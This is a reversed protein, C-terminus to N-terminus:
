QWKEAGKEVALEMLHYICGRVGAGTGGPAFYGWQEEADATGGIDLHLWQGRLAEPVFRELFMGATIAGGTRGSPMNSVDAAPCDNMAGLYDNFELVTYMEGSTEARRKFAFGTEASTGMVGTTFMGLGVCVAGTLTALDIMRDPKVHDATWSLCDALVLRGECDTNGVDVTIGAHSRIIEDPRYANAGIMNETCGLVAHVEFPLKLEAAARVIGLAAAAGGMDDKMNRMHEPPKLSLGGSDYTIGKGVYAIRELATGEPRYCLHILQPELPSARNVALFLNMGEEELAPRGYVDCTVAPESEALGRALEAMRQPTMIGPIENVMDRVWNTAAALRAGWALGREAAERDAGLGYTGPDAVFVEEIPFDKRDSRYRDFRYASLEFGEAIAAYARETGAAEGIVPEMWLTRVNWAWIADVAKAIGRRVREPDASPISVYIRGKEPLVAVDEGPFGCRELVARDECNEALSGTVLSLEVDARIKEGAAVTYRM